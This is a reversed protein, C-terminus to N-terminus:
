FRPKPKTIHPKKLYFPEFYAVNEHREERWAQEALACLYTSSPADITSCRIKSNNLLPQFKAVADGTLVISDYGDQLLYDFSDPTLTCFFPEKIVHLETNYIAAYADMRRADLLAIYAIRASSKLDERAAWALAQLTDISLLPKNLAYCIGKATSIGIRLGTYSGPGKSVAVADIADLTLNAQQLIDQIFLTINQAHGASDREEKSTWLQGNKSLCVSCNPTTTDINLIIAM